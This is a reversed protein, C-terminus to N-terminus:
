LEDLIGKLQYDRHLQKFIDMYYSNYEIDVLVYNKYILKNKIKIKTYGDNYELDWLIEIKDKHTDISNKIYETDYTYQCIELADDILNIYMLRLNNYNINYSM